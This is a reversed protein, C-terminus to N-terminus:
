AALAERVLVDAGPALGDVSGPVDIPNSWAFPNSLRRLNALRTMPRSVEVTFALTGLEADLWDDMDGVTAYWDTAQMVRYSAGRLAGSFARGARAYKAKRPNPKATFAWPYLLLEGFSHFGVSVRPRIEEAVDRLARTEPESFPCRGVYHPSRKWRSGGFPHTPMDPRLRPFNRNLDVGRANCRQFARRGAALRACNAHLADPNVVPVAVVRAHKLLGGEAVLHRVLSLLALSGVVEVGHMLGTLLVAEGGPAGLEYSRIPREEVSAGIVRVRAGAQRALDAWAEDFGAPDPYAQWPSPLWGM